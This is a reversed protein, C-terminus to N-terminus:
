GRRQQMSELHALGDDTIPVGILHLFRLNEMQAVHTLGEDTVQPTHFRLLELRPLSKLQALGVDSFSADPLNLNKLNSCEAIAAMADDDIVGGRLQLREINPVRALNELGVATGQFADIALHRLGPLDALLALQEDAISEFTAVPRLGDAGEAALASAALGVAVIVALLSMGLQKM